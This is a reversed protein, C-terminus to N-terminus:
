LAELPLGERDVAEALTRPVGELELVLEALGVGVDLEAADREGHAGPPLLDHPALRVVEAHEVAGVREVEGPVEM